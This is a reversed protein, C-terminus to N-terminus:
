VEGDNLDNLDNLVSPVEKRPRGPARKVPQAEPQAEPQVESQAPMTANEPVKAITVEAPKEEVKRKASMAADWVPQGDVWGAAAAATLEDEPIHRFGGDSKFMLKM